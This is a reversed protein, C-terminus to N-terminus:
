KEKTFRPKMSVYVGAMYKLVQRIRCVLSLFIMIELLVAHDFICCLHQIILFLCTIKFASKILLINEFQM